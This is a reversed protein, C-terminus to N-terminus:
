VLFAPKIPTVFDAPKIEEFTENAQEAANKRAQWDAQAAIVAAAQAAVDADWDRLVKYAADSPQLNRRTNYQAYTEVIRAPSHGSAVADQNIWTIKGSFPNESLQFLDEGPQGVYMESPADYPHPSILTTNGSADVAYIEGSGNNAIGATGAPFSTRGNGTLRLRLALVDNSFTNTAASFTNAANLKPINSSLRNDALTGTTNAIALSGFYPPNDTNGLLVQGSTGPSALTAPAADTGGGIVVSNAVLLDTPGVNQSDSFYLLCGPSGLGSFAVGSDAFGGAENGRILNTSMPALNTLKSGDLASIKGDGDIGVFGNPQNIWENPVANNLLTVQAPTMAGQLSDTAPNLAATLQAATATDAVGASIKQLIDAM